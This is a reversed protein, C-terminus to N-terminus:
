DELKLTLNGQGDHSVTYVENEFQLQMPMGDTGYLISGKRETGEVTLIATTGDLILRNESHEEQTLIARWTGDEQLSLAYFHKQATAPDTASLFALDAVAEIGAADQMQFLDQSQLHWYLGWTMCIVACAAIGATLARSPLRFRHTRNQEARVAAMIDAHLTKPFPEAAISVWKANDFFAQMNKRCATCVNCHCEVLSSEEATCEGDVYASLLLQIDKCEGSM